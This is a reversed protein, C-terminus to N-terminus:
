EVEPESESESQPHNYTKRELIGQEISGWELADYDNGDSNKVANACFLHFQYEMDDRTGYKNIPAQPTDNKISKRQAYYHIM